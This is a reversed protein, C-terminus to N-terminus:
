KLLGFDQLLKIGTESQTSFPQSRLWNRLILGGTKESKRSYASNIAEHLLTPIQIINDTSQLESAPLTANTGGQEVIHHYQYGPGASGFRLALIEDFPLRKYFEDYSSFSESGSGVRLEDLTYPGAAIFDLAAKADIDLQHLEVATNALQVATITGVADSLFPIFSALEEAPLSLAQLLLARIARRM